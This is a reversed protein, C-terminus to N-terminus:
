NPSRVADSQESKARRSNQWVVFLVCVFLSVAAIWHANDIVRELYIWRAIFVVLWLAVAAGFGWVFNRKSPPSGRQVSAPKTELEFTQVTWFVMFFLSVAAEVWAMGADGERELGVAVDDGAHVLVRGRGDGVEDEGARLLPGSGHDRVGGSVSGSVVARLAVCGDLLHLVFARSLLPPPPPIQVRSRQTILQHLVM